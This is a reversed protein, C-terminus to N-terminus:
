DGHDTPRRRRVMHHERQGFCRRQLRRQVGAPQQGDEDFDAGKSFIMSLDLAPVTMIYELTPRGVM